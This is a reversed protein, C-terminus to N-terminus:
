VTTRPYTDSVRMSFVTLHWHAECDWEVALHSISEDQLMDNLADLLNEQELQENSLMGRNAKFTNILHSRDLEITTM